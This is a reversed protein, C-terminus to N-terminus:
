QLVLSRRVNVYRLHANVRQLTQRLPAIELYKAMVTVHKLERRVMEQETANWRLSKTLIQLRRGYRDAHVEITPRKEISTLGRKVQLRRDTDILKDLQQAAGCKERTNGAARVAEAQTHTHTHTHTHTRARARVCVCVRARARERERERERQATCV